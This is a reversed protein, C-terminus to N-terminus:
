LPFIPQQAPTVQKLAPDTGNLAYGKHLAWAKQHAETQQTLYLNDFGGKPAKRLLAINSAGETELRTSPRAIKREKNSLAAMLTKSSATHMDIMSKAYAKVDPRSSKTLALRAAQIEYQDSAAAMKVYDGAPIATMPAIGVDAAGAMGTTETAMQALAPTSIALIAASGALLIRNFM